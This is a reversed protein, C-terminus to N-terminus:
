HGKLIAKAESVPKDKDQNAELLEEWSEEFTGVDFGNTQGAVHGSIAGIDFTQSEDERGQYDVTNRFIKRVATAELGLIGLSDSVPKGYEEVWELPYKGLPKQGAMLDINTVPLGNKTGDVNSLTQTNEVRPDYTRDQQGTTLEFGLSEFAEHIAKAETFSLKDQPHNTHSVMYDLDNAKREEMDPIHYMMTQAGGVGYLTFDSEGDLGYKQRRRELERNLESTFRDLQSASLVEEGRVDEYRGNESM